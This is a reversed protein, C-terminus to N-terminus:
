DQEEARNRGYANGRGDTRPVIGRGRTILTGGIDINDIVALGVGTPDSPSPTDTGEDFVIDISRVQTTGFVFPPGSGAPDITGLTASFRVRVWQAPDQPAPSQAGRACGAFYSNGATSTINFRPAGAGCHGGTRYDFGLESITSGSRFGKITAGSSSCDPTPGNKNLLLGTHPDQRTAPNPSNASTGDDPLGMGALWGSTVINSGAPGGCQASTGVFVWPEARLRRDNNDRGKFDDDDDWPKAAAGAAVGVIVVSMLLTSAHKLLSFAQM